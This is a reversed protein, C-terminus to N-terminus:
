NKQPEPEKECREEEVRAEVRLSRGREEAARPSARRGYREGEKMQDEKLPM